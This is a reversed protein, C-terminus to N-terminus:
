ISPLWKVAALREELTPQVLAIGTLGFYNSEVKKLFDRHVKPIRDQWDDPHKQITAIVSSGINHVAALYLGAHSSPVNGMLNSLVQYNDDWLALMARISWGYHGVITNYPVLGNKTTFFRKWNDKGVLTNSTDPAMMALGIGGIGEENAYVDMGNERTDSCFHGIPDTEEVKYINLKEKGDKGIERKILYVIKGKTCSLETLAPDDSLQQLEDKFYRKAWPRESSSVWKNIGTHEAILVALILNTLDAELEFSLVDKGKRLTKMQVNIASRWKDLIAEDAADLTGKAVTVKKEQEDAAM